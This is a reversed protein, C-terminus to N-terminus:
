KKNMYATILNAVKFTGYGLEDAKAIMLATRGQNDKAWIDAGNDLLVKATSHCDRVAAEMLPTRGAYDRINVNAGYSILIALAKAQSGDDYLPSALLHLISAGTLKGQLEIDAGNEI